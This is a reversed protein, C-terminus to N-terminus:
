SGFREELWRVAFTVFAEASFLEATCQGVPGKQVPGQRLFDVLIQAFYDGDSWDVIGDSDDLSEIM